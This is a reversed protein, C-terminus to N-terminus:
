GLLARLRLAQREDTGPPNRSRAPDAAALIFLWTLALLRRCDRLRAREQVTLDFRALFAAADLGGGVGGDFGGDVWSSVHETIEALEFARDSRGSDEFDVM